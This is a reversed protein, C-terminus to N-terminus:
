NIDEFEADVVDHGNSDFREIPHAAEFWERLRERIIEPDMEATFTFTTM